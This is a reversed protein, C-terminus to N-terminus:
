KLRLQYFRTPGNTSPISLTYIGNVLSPPASVASWVVPPTLNTTEVVEFPLISVPWSLIVQRVHSGPATEGSAGGNGTVALLPAAQVPIDRCFEGTTNASDTVTASVFHSPNVTVPLIATFSSTGKSDNTVTLSGLYNLGEGYGSYNTVANEYFQILYVKNASSNLTGTIATQSGSTVCSALVAM